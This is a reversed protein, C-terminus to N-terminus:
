ENVTSGFGIKGIINSGQTVCTKAVNFWVVVNATEWKGSEDCALRKLKDGDYANETTNAWSITTDLEVEEEFTRNKNTARKQPASFVLESKPSDSTAIQPKFFPPLKKFGGVLKKFMKQADPKGTKSVIGYNSDFSKRAHNLIISCFRFSYGDRRLKGYCQGFCNEDLECLHWHYFWRRDRDRYDPYAGDIKFWQLYFYHDGTIYTVKGNNFFFIGDRCKRNEEMAFEEQKEKSWYEYDNALPVRRWKQDKKPLNYNLIESNKKPPDPISYYLGEYLEIQEM